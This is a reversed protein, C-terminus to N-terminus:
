GDIAEQRGQFWFKSVVRPRGKLYRALRKLKRRAGVTPSSTERCLEKVPYQIDVRDSALYNARAGLSRFETAKAEDLKEEEEDKLWAKDEETPTLLEKAEELNLAKVLHDAHRQDAEYEWGGDVVRIIRNLVKGEQCEGKGTGIVQSKIEFRGELVKKLWELDKVDGVTVFDDGHVLTKLQRTPHCYTSM